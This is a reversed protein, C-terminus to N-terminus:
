DRRRRVPRRFGGEGRALVLALGAALLAALPPGPVAPVLDLLVGEGIGDRGAQAAIQLVDGPVACALAAALFSQLYSSRRM